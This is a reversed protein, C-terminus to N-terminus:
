IDNRTITVVMTIIWYDTNCRYVPRRISCNTLYGSLYMNQSVPDKGSLFSVDGKRFPDKGNGSSNDGPCSLNDGKAPCKIKTIVFIIAPRNYLPSSLYPPLPYLEMRWPHVTGDKLPPVTGDKLPTSNWGELPYREMRGPPVTRDKLPTCNWGELPYREMRLPPYLEM